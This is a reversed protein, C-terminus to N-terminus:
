ASAHIVGIVAALTGIQMLVITRLQQALKLDLAGHVRDIKGDLAQFRADIAEFRADVSDFRADIRGFRPELAALDTKTALESYDIPPMAEMAIDALRQDAFVRVLAQRLDLRDNENITM